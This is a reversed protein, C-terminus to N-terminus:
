MRLQQQQATVTPTSESVMNRFQSQTSPVSGFDTHAFTSSTVLDSPTRQQQQQPLTSNLASGTEATRFLSTRAQEIQQQRLAALNLNPTSANPNSLVPGTAPLTPQQTQHQTQARAINDTSQIATGPVGVSSSAPPVAAKDKNAGTPLLNPPALGKGTSANNTTTSKASTIRLARLAPITENLRPTETSVSISTNRWDEGTNQQITARYLLSVSSPPQGNETTARLDYTPSWSADNVVTPLAFM